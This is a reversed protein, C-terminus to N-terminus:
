QKDFELNKGLDTLSYAVPSVGVKEVYGDAILKKMSGSVSRPSMFLLEGLEKSKFINMYKDANEKMSKLIKVGNETFASGGNKGKNASNILEEFQEITFEYTDTTHNFNKEFDEKKLM